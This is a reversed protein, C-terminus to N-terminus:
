GDSARGGAGRRDHRGRRRRWEGRKHQHYGAAALAAVALSRAREVLEDLQRELDDLERRRDREAQRREAREGHDLGELAAIMVASEGAAVYRSTVRGGRRVSRYLYTRGGRDILAM